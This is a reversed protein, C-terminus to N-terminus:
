AYTPGPDAGPAYRVVRISALAMPVMTGDGWRLMRQRPKRWGYRANLDHQRADPHKKRLWRLLTWWVHHDIAAFVRKAGWAHRYCNGWGRLVPNLLRLRSELSECLTKRDFIGHITRRLRVSCDRPVVLRPVLRRTTPRRRVRLHHGLFRMTNTVQTVLTKEPSLTLGLRDRLM